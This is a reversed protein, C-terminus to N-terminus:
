KKAGVQRYHNARLNKAAMAVTEDIRKKRTVPQKANQIWELIIRKSSPPFKNFNTFAKTNKKFESELDKPLVSNQVDVLALWTGSSKALEIMEMGSRTMRKSRIMAEARERNLKSWKSTAKRRAFLQYRSTSDRKNALSDIWGFCIAEEVAEAYTITPVGSNNNFLILWVRDHTKHNAKLWKRWAERGSAVVADSGRYSEKM